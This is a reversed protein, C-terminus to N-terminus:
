PCQSSNYTNFQVSDVHVVRFCEHKQAPFVHGCLRKQAPQDYEFSTRLRKQLRDYGLDRLKLSVATKCEGWLRDLEKSNDAACTDKVIMKRTGREDSLKPLPCRVYWQCQQGTLITKHKRCAEPSTEGSCFWAEGVAEDTGARLRKGKPKLIKADVLVTAFVLSLIVKWM